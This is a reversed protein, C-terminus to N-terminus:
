VREDEIEELYPNHLKDMADQDTLWEETPEYGAVGDTRKRWRRGMYEHNFGEGSISWGAMAGEAFAAAKMARIERVSLAALRTDLWQPDCTDDDNM